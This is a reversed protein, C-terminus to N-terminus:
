GDYAEWESVLRRTINIIPKRSNLPDGFESVDVTVTEYEWTFRRDAAESDTPQTPANQESM